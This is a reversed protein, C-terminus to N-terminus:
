RNEAPKITRIASELHEWNFGTKADHEDEAVEMAAEIEEHTLSDDLFLFDDALWFTGCCLSDDPFRALRARFAKITMGGM